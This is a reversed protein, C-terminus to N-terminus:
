ESSENELVLKRINLVADKLNGMDDADIKSELKEIKEFLRKEYSEVANWLSALLENEDDQPHGGATFAYSSESFLDRIQNESLIKQILRLSKSLSQFLHSKEDVRSYFHHHLEHNLIIRISEETELCAKMIRISELFGSYFANFEDTNSQILVDHMKYEPYRSNWQSLTRQIHQIQFIQLSFQSANWHICTSDKKLTVWECRYTKRVQLISESNKHLDFILVNDGSKLLFSVPHFDVKETKRDSKIYLSYGMKRYETDMMVPFHVTFIYPVAKTIDEPLFKRDFSDRRPVFTLTKLLCNIKEENDPSIRLSEIMEELSEM